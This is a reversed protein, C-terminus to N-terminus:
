VQIATMTGSDVHVYRINIGVLGHSDPLGTALEIIPKPSAAISRELRLHARILATASAGTLPSGVAQPLGAGFTTHWIYDGANTLLRRLVRERSLLHDTSLLLDGNAALSFDGGWIHALDTM